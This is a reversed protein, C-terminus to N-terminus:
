VLLCNDVCVQLVLLTGAEASQRCCMIVAKCLFCSLMSISYDVAPHSRLVLEDWVRMVNSVMIRARTAFMFQWWSARTADPLDLHNDVSVCCGVAPVITDLQM